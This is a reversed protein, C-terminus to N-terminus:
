RNRELQREAAQSALQQRHEVREIMKAARNFQRDSLEKFPSKAIDKLAVAHNATFEGIVQFEIDEVIEIRKGMVGGESLLQGFLLHRHSGGMREPRRDTGAQRRRLRRRVSDADQNRTEHCSGSVPPLGLLLWLKAVHPFAVPMTGILAGIVLNVGLMVGAQQNDLGAKEKWYRHDVYLALAVFITQWLM